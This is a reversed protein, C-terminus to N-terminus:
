RYTFPFLMEPQFWIMELIEGLSARKLVDFHRGDLSQVAKQIHREIDLADVRDLAGLKWIGSFALLAMVTMTTGAKESLCLKISESFFNLAEAEDDVSIGIRGNNYLWLQWPHRKCLLSDKHELVWGYYRRSPEACDAEAFFRALLAHQWSTFPALSSWVGSLADIELYELLTEKARDLQGADLYAYTLYNLQRLWEDKFEPSVDRGLAKQAMQSYRKANDLYTPGCFSFNQSISGYLRGLVPYAFCGSECRMRYIRELVELIKKLAEPLEPEFVYRNHSCVFYHNYFTAVSEIDAKVAKHLLMDAQNAWKSAEGVMGRHNFLGMNVTYWEFVALPAQKAARALDADDFLGCVGECQELKGNELAGKMASVLRGILIPDEIVANNVTKAKDHKGAWSLWEHPVSVADTVFRAPDELIKLFLLLEAGRGPSYLLSFMWAHDFCYAPLAELGEITNPPENATPYIFLRFDKPMAIAVKKDLHAVPLIKGDRDLIGSALLRCPKGQRTLARAFGLAIPLGLSGGKFQISDNPVALPYCYLSGKTPFFRQAVYAAQMVAEKSSNEMLNAAWPPFLKLDNNDPLYGCVFYRLRAHGRVLAVPAISWSGKIAENLSIGSLYTGVDIYDQTWECFWEPMEDQFALCSTLVHLDLLGRCEPNDCLDNKLEEFTQSFVDRSISQLDDLFPACLHEVFQHHENETLLFKLFKIDVM